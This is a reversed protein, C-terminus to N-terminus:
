VFYSFSHRGNQDCVDVHRPHVANGQQLSKLFFYEGALAQWMLITSALTTQFLAQRDPRQEQSYLGIGACVKETQLILPVPRATSVLDTVLSVDFIDSWFGGLILM